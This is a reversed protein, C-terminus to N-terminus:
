IGTLDLRTLALNYFMSISDELIVGEDTNLLCYLGARSVLILILLFSVKVKKGWKEVGSKLSTLSLLFLFARTWSIEWPHLNSTDLTIVWCMLSMLLLSVQQLCRRQGYAWVRARSDRPFPLIDDLIRLGLLPARHQVPHRRHQPHLSLGGRWEPGLPHRGTHNM